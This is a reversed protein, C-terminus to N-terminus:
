GCPQGGAVFGSENPDIVTGTAPAGSTSPIPAASGGAAPPPAFYEDEDDLLNLQQTAPNGTPLNPRRHLAQAMANWGNRFPTQFRQILPPRPPPTPPIDATAISSGDAFISQPTLPRDPPLDPRERFETVPLGDAGVQPIRNNQDDLRYSGDPNKEYLPVSTRLMPFAQAAPNNSEANRRIDQYALSPFAMVGGLRTDPPQYGAAQVAGAAWTTCNATCFNFDDHYTRDVYEFVREAEEFTLQYTRGAAPATRPDRFDPRGEDTLRGPDTTYRLVLPNDRAFKGIVWNNRRLLNYHRPFQDRWAQPLDNPNGIQMQIYSHGTRTTRITEWVSEYQIQAHFTMTVPRNGAPSPAGPTLGDIHTINGNQNIVGSWHHTGDDWTVGFTGDPYRATVEGTFRRPPPGPLVIPVPRGVPNGPLRLRWRARHGLPQPQVETAWDGPFRRGNLPHPPRVIPPPGSAHGAQSSNPSVNVHGHSSASPSEDGGGGVFGHGMDSTPRSGVWGDSSGSPSPPDGGFNGDGLDHGTESGLPSLGMHGNSSGSNWGHAFTPVPPFSSSGSSSSGGSTPRLPRPNPLPPLNTVQLQPPAAGPPLGPVNGTSGQPRTPPVPQFPTVMYETGPLVTSAPPPRTTNAWHGPPFPSNTNPLNPLPRPPRPNSTTAAPPPSRVLYGNSDVVTTIVRGDATPVRVRFTGNGLVNLVQGQAPAGGGLQVNVFDGVAAPRNHVWIASAGVFYTHFEDVEFNYVPVQRDLSDANVLRVPRGYGDILLDEGPVLDRADVWGRGETFFPHNGTTEFVENRGDSDLTSLRVLSRSHNVFTQLVPRWDTTDGSESRSLVLTGATVEEISRLGDITVVKTGAVFCMCSIGDCRPPAPRPAPNAINSQHGGGNGCSSTGNVNLIKEGQCALTENTGGSLLRIGGVVAFVFVALIIIGEIVTVGREDTLRPPRRNIRLAARAFSLNVCSFFLLDHATARACGEGPIAQGFAIESPRALHWSAGLLSSHGRKRQSTRIGVGLLPRRINFV